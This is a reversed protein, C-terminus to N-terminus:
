DDRKNCDHDENSFLHADCFTEETEGDGEYNGLLHPIARHILDAYQGTRSEQVYAKCSKSCFRAWGRKVDASRAMFTKGCKKNHCKREVMAPM